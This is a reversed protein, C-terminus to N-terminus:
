FLLTFYGTLGGFRQSVELLNRPSPFRAFGAHYIFDIGWGASDRYQLQARGYWRTGRGGSDIPQVVPYPLDSFYLSADQFIEMNLWPSYAANLIVRVDPTKLPVYGLVLDLASTRYRQFTHQAEGSYHRLQHDEYLIGASWGAIFEYSTELSLQQQWSWTYLNDFVFSQLGSGRWEGSVNWDTLGASARLTLPGEVYGLRAKALTSQLLTQFYAGQLDQVYTQVSFYEMGGGFEFRAWAANSLLGLLIASGLLVKIRM